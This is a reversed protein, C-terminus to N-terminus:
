MHRESNPANSKLPKFGINTITTLSNNNVVNHRSRDGPRISYGLTRNQPRNESHECQIGQRQWFYNRIVLSIKVLTSVIRLEEVSKCGRIFKTRDLWYESMYKYGLTMRTEPWSRKVKREQGKDKKSQTLTKHGWNDLTNFITRQARRTRKEGTDM